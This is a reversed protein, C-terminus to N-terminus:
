HKTHRREEAMWGEIVAVTIDPRHKMIVAIIEVMRPIPSTGTRYTRLTRVDVGLFRAVAQCHEGESLVSGTRKNCRARFGNLMEQFHASQM